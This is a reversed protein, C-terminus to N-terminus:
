KTIWTITMKSQQQQINRVRQGNIIVGPRLAPMLPITASDITANEIMDAPIPINTNAWMSDNWSGVFIKGNGQQQWIYKKINFLQGLSDMLAYGQRHNVVYPVSNLAYDREPIIFELGTIDSINNLLDTLTIHQYFVPLDHRLLASLERSFLSYQGNSVQRFSEVYGTFWRVLNNNYGCEYAIVQGVSPEVDTVIDAAGPNRYSLYCSSSIVNAPTNGVYLRENLKM